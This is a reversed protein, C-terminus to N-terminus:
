ARMDKKLNILYYWAEMTWRADALAHHEVGDHPPLRPNGISRALQKVDLCYM